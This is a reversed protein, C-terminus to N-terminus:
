DEGTIKFLPGVSAFLVNDTTGMKAVMQGKMYAQNAIPTDLPYNAMKWTLGDDDSMVLTWGFTANTLHNYLNGSATETFRGCDNAKSYATVTVTNTSNTYHYFRGNSIIVCIDATLCYIAVYSYAGSGSVNDTTDVWTVGGNTTKWINGSSDVAYGTSTDFMDVGYVKAAPATTADTWTGGQDTSFIIHKNGGADDGGLVILGSAPFSADYVATAFNATTKTGWTAGSDSTYVTETNISGIEYGFGLTPTARCEILSGDADLVASRSTWTAGSDSTQYITTGGTCVSYTTANHGIASTSNNFNTGTNILPFWRLKTMSDLLDDAYLIDGDAWPTGADPGKDTM